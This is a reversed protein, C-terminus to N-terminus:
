VEELENEDVRRVAELTHIQLLSMEQGLEFVNANTANAKVNRWSRNRIIPKFDEDLGTNLRLTLRTGVPIAAVAM